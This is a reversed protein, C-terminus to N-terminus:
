GQEHSATATDLRSACCALRRHIDLLNSAAEWFVRSIAGRTEGIEPLVSGTMMGPFGLAGSSKDQPFGPLLHRRVLRVQQAIGRDIPVDPHPRGAMSLM